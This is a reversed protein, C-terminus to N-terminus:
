VLEKDEAVWREIQLTSDTQDWDCLSKPVWIKKTGNIFLYAKETEHELVLDKVTVIESKKPVNAM